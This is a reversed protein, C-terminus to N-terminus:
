DFINYNLCVQCQRLEPTINELDELKPWVYNLKFQLLWSWVPRMSQIEILKDLMEDLTVQRSVLALVIQEVDIVYM